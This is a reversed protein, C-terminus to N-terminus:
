QSIQYLSYFYGKRNLLDEFTGCEEISGNHLVLIEDYQRLIPADLRHSVVIRMTSDLGLITQLVASATENDLAAEAEDVLIIPSKRILCRAISVRQREGGSLHCGGEGCLYDTGKAACLASLGARQIAHSLEEQPFDRFMTINNAISSNFCFVEQQIMSVHELLQDLDLQRLETGDYQIQGTYGPLFGVLLKLLTSKGSGSGGVLAYRKGAEFTHNIAHLVPRGNGYGFSLDRLTISTPATSLTAKRSQTTHTDEIDREIRQILADAAHRNAVLVGLSRIPSLMNGSLEYFGIIKGVSIQGNFALLFGVSLFIVSVLISAINGALSVTDNSARRKQKTSELEVNKEQFVSMIQNEAQFSKIVTFGSLLDKTQAVFDSAKEMTEAENKVVKGGFRFSVLIAILSSVVLTIGLPVNLILLVAATVVYNLIEVFLNLEGVLYNQEISNLDNSFASIFKATDGSAYSSIPQRLIKSFVYNKFQTLAKRLYTNQYKRRFLGCAMNAVIYVGVMALGYLFKQISQYELSEVVFTFILSSSISMVVVLLKGVLSLIYNKRNGIHFQQRLIAAERQERM